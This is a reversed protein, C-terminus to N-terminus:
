NGPPPLPSHGDWAAVERAHTTVEDITWRGGPGGNQYKLGLATGVEDCAVLVDDIDTKTHAASVCFRVRSSILPTAPYAVVVVM